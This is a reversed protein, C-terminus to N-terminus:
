LFFKRTKLELAFNEGIEKGMCGRIQRYFIQNFRFAGQYLTIKSSFFLDGAPHYGLWSTNKHYLL